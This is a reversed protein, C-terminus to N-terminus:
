LLSNEKFTLGNGIFNLLNQIVFPNNFMRLSSLGDEKFTSILHDWVEGEIIYKFQTDPFKNKLRVYVNYYNDYMHKPKSIFAVKEFKNNLLLNEACNYMFDEEAKKLEGHENMHDWNYYRFPYKDSVDFHKNIPIIGSNSMVVTDLNKIKIYKTYNLAKSYPKRSSCSCILLNKSQQKFNKIIYEHAIKFVPHNIIEMSEGVLDDMYAWDKRHIFEDSDPIVNGLKQIVYQIKIDENLESFDGVGFHRLLSRRRWPMINKPNFFNMEGLWKLIEKDTLPKENKRYM